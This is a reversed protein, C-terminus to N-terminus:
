VAGINASGRRSLAKLGLYLAIAGSVLHIITHAISLHFGLLGPAIFGLLGALLFGIGLLTAIRKAM